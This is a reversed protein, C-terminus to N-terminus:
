QFKKKLVEKSVTPSDGQIHQKEEYGRAVLRAKVKTEGAPNIKENVVWRVSISSQGQNKVEEYVQNEKWYNLEAEKAKIVRIDKVNIATLYIECINSEEIIHWAVVGNEWDISYTPENNVKFNVWYKNRGTRKGAYSIVEGEIWENRNRPQYKVREGIKPMVTKNRIAFKQPEIIRDKKAILKTEKTKEETYDKVNNTSHSENRDHNDESNSENESGDTNEDCIEYEKSLVKTEHVKYIERGYQITVIRSYHGIVVGPGRWELENDRKFYVKDGNNYIRGITRVKYRLARRIKESSEAKVFAQRASFLTNLHDAFTSNITKGELAPPDDHLVSPLKPNRGFVLQYPSYGASMELCNKSHIAWALANELKCNPDGAIIKELMLDVVAHNRECLGNSFPSYGATSMIIIGLNECVDKFDRNEFEGGNDVLFKSPCGLGTGIWLKMINDIITNREKNKIIAARTYRTSVDIMYLIYLSGREWEKLDM